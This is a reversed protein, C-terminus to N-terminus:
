HFKMRPKATSRSTLQQQGQERATSLGHSGSTGSRETNFGSRGSTSRDDSPAGMPSSADRLWVSPVLSTLPTASTKQEASGAPEPAAEPKAVGAEAAAPAAPATELSTPGEAESAASDAPLEPKERSQQAATLQSLTHAQLEALQRLM